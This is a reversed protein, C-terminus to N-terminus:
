VTLGNNPIVSVRISNLLLINPREVEQGELHKAGESTARVLHLKGTKDAAIYGYFDHGSVYIRGDKGKILRTV